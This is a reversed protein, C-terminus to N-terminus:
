GTAIPCAWLFNLHCVILLFCVLLCFRSVSLFFSFVLSDSPPHPSFLCFTFRYIWACLSLYWLLWLGLFRADPLLLSFGESEGLLFSCLVISRFSGLNNFSTTPPCMESLPTPESAAWKIKRVGQPSPSGTGNWLRAVLCGLTKQLSSCM